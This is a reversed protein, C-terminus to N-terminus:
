GSVASETNDVVETPQEADPDAPHEEEPVVPEFEENRPDLETIVHTTVPGVGICHTQEEVAPGPQRLQAHIAFGVLVLLTASTFWFLGAPGSLTMMASGGIPGIITGLGFALLLTASAPVIQSQDLADHTLALSVAYLSSILGFFFASTVFLGVLSAHGFLAAALSALLGAVAVGLIVLTRPFYDSLYGVPWQCLMAALVSIGMFLSVQEIQLGVRVAYIPAVASFAASVIGALFAGALGLEALSWLQGIGLRVGPQLEPAVARTLSIPVVALAILIGALSFLQYDRPDGLGLLFQGSAAALFFLILYIALLTGRNETTARSNIWSETVLMLGALCFGVALRLFGWPVPHVGLPHLLVAATALAAFCAFARIHGVRNIVQIGYLSGLVFGLSYCALVGGSIAATTGELELRVALLTGLLSNGIILLVLSSFLAIISFVVQRM